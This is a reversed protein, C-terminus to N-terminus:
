VPIEEWSMSTQMTLATLTFLGVWAGPPVIISGDLFIPTMVVVNSAAASDRQYSGLNKFAVPAGVYTATSFAKAVSSSAANILNNYNTLVTTGTPAAVNPGVGACIGFNGVIATAIAVTFTPEITWLVLNKGSAIPNYLSFVGIASATLGAPTAAGAQQSASFVAGRFVAEQYRAHADLTVGAGDRSGRQTIQASDAAVQPGVRLEVIAM